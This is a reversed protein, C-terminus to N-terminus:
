ICSIVIGVFNPNRIGRESVLFEDTVLVIYTWPFAVNICQWIHFFYICSVDIFKKQHGCEYNTLSMIKLHRVATLFYLM